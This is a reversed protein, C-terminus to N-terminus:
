DDAVDISRRQRRLEVLGETRQRLGRREALNGFGLHLRPGDAPDDRHVDRLGLDLEAVGAELTVMRVENGGVDHVMDEAAAAEGRPQGLLHALLPAEAVGNVAIECREVMRSEEDAARCGLVPPRGFRELDDLSLDLAHCALARGCLFEFRGLGIEGTRVRQPEIGGGLDRCLQESNLEVVEADVVDFLAVLHDLRHGQVIDPPHRRFQQFGVQKQYRHDTLRGANLVTRRYTLMPRHRRSGSRTPRPPVSRMGYWWSMDPQKVSRDPSPPSSRSVNESARAAVSGARALSRSHCPSPVSGSRCRGAFRSSMSAQRAAASWSWRPAVSTSTNPVPPELRP